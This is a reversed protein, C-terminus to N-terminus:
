RFPYNTMMLQRVAEQQQPTARPAAPLSGAVYANPDPTFRWGPMPAPPPTRPMPPPMHLARSAAANNAIRSAGAEAGTLLPDDRDLQPEGTIFEMITRRTRDPDRATILDEINREPSSLTPTTKQKAAASAPAGQRFAGMTNDAGEGELISTLATNYNPMDIMRAAATPSIGGRQANSGTVYDMLDARTVQPTPVPQPAPKEAKATAQTFTQAGPREPVTSFDPVMPPRIPTLSERPNVQQDDLPNTPTAANAALFDRLWQLM